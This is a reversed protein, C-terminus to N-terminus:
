LGAELCPLEGDRNVVVKGYVNEDCPGGVLTRLARQYVCVFTAAHEKVGLGDVGDTDSQAALVLANHEVDIVQESRLVLAWSAGDAEILCHLVYGLVGGHIVNIRALNSEDAVVLVDDGARGVM